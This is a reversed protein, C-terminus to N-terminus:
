WWAPWSASNRLQAMHPLSFGHPLRRALIQTTHQAHLASRPSHRAPRVSCVEHAAPHGSGAPQNRLNMLDQLTPSTCMHPKCTCTTHKTTLKFHLLLPSSALSSWMCHMVVHRSWMCHPAGQQNQM